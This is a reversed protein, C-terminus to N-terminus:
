RQLLWLVAPSATLLLGVLVALLTTRRDDGGLLGRVVLVLGVTVVVAAAIAVVTFNQWLYSFSVWLVAGGVAGLVWQMVVVPWGAGTGDATTDRRRAGRGRAPAGADVGGTRDPDAGFEHDETGADDETAVVDPDALVATGAPGPEELPEDDDFDM